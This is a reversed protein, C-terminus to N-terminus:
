RQYNGASYKKGNKQNDRARGCVRLLCDYSIRLYLRDDVLADRALPGHPDDDSHEFFSLLWANV